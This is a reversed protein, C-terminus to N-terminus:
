SMRARKQKSRTVKRLMNASHSYTRPETVPAVYTNCEICSAVTCPAINLLVHVHLPITMNWDWLCDSVFLFVHLIACHAECVDPLMWVCIVQPIAQPALEQAHVDGNVLARREQVEEAQLSRVGAPRISVLIPSYATRCGCRGKAHSSSAM